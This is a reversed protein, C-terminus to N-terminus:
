PAMYLPFVKSDWRKKDMDIECFGNFEAKYDSAKVEYPIGPIRRWTCDGWVHSFAVYEIEDTKAEFLTLNGDIFRAFKILPANETVPQVGVSEERSNRPEISPANSSPLDHLTHDSEHENAVKAEDDEFRQRTLELAQKLASLNFASLASNESLKSIIRPISGFISTSTPSKFDL